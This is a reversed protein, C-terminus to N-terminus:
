FMSLSDVQQMGLHLTDSCLLRLSLSVEAVAALNYSEALQLRQRLQALLRCISSRERSIGPIVGDMQPPATCIRRIGRSVFLKVGCDTYSNLLSEKNAASPLM